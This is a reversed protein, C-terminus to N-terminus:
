VFVSDVNLDPGLMQGDARSAQLNGLMLIAVHDAQFSALGAPETKVEEVVLADIHSDMSRGFGIERYVGSVAADADASDSAVDIEVATVTTLVNVRDAAVKAGVSTITCDAHASAKILEIQRGAIAANLDGNQRSRLHTSRPVQLGAVSM